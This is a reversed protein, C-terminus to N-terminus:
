GQPKCYTSCSCSRWGKQLFRHQLLLHNTM